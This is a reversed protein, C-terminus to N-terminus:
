DQSTRNWFRIARTQHEFGLSSAAATSLTLRAGAEISLECWRAGLSRLIHGHAFLIAARGGAQAHAVLEAVLRDCRASVDAPSEGGPCGDRWLWWDPDRERIEPTTMGEYEGYDWERLEERIEAREALGVAACTARARQLPSCLVLDYSHREIHPRMRQAEKVGRETLPLDTNGTHRGSRSWETEGHRMLMAEFHTLEDMPQLIVRGGTSRM